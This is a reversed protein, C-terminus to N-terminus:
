AKKWYHVSNRKGSVKFSCVDNNKKVCSQMWYCPTDDEMIATDMMTRNSILGKQNLIYLAKKWCHVSYRKGCVKFSGVNINKKACSKMWYSTTDDKMIAAVLM